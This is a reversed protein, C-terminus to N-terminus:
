QRPARRVQSPRSVHDASVRVCRGEEEGASEWPSGDLQDGSLRNISAEVGGEAAASQSSMEDNALDGIPLFGM